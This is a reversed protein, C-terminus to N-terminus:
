QKLKNKHYKPQKSHTPINKAKISNKKLKKKNKEFNPHYIHDHDAEITNHHTMKNIETLTSVNNTSRYVILKEICKPQTKTKKWGTLNVM